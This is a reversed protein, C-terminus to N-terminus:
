AVNRTKLKSIESVEVLVRELFHLAYTATSHRFGVHGARNREKLMSDLVGHQASGILGADRCAVLFDFDRVDRISDRSKPKRRVQLHANLTQFQDEWAFEHLCDVLAGWALVIASSYLRADIAKVSEAVANRADPTMLTLREDSLYAAANSISSPPSAPGIQIRKIALLTDKITAM